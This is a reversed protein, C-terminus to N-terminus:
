EPWAGVAAFLPGQVMGYWMAADGVTNSRAYHLRDEEWTPKAVLRLSRRLCRHYRRDGHARAGVLALGSAGTGANLVPVLEGADVDEVSELGRPWERSYGMGLLIRGLEKRARRYQDEALDEDVLQLMHSALWISSGEPGDQWTGEWSWESILLGTRHETGVSRVWTSFDAALASHDTGELHDVIRLSALAITNCFLWVEDPHSEGSHSPSRSLSGEIREIWTRREAALAPDEELFRRASLMMSIEGDVFLSRGSPDRWDRGTAYPLLYYLSGLDAELRLTDAIIADVAALHREKHTPDSLAMDVLALVSFTRTMFDWEPNAQRMPWLEQDRVEPHEWMWLFRAALGEAHRSFDQAQAPPCLLLLLLALM